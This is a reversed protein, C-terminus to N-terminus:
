LTAGRRQARLVVAQPAVFGGDFVPRPAFGQAAFLRLWYLMPKVNVHAPEAFDNPSSSFLIRDTVKTMEAIAQIADPENM